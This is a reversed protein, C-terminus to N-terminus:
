MAPTPVLFPSLNLPASKSKANGIIDDVSIREDDAIVFIAVLNKKESKAAAREGRATDRSEDV